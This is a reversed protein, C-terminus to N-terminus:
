NSGRGIARLLKIRDAPDEGERFVASGMVIVNAGASITQRINREDVGGDIELECSPNLKDFIARSLSIKEMM